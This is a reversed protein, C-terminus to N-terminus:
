DILIIRRKHTSLTLRVKGIVSFARTAIDLNVLTRVYPISANTTSLLGIGVLLGTEAEFQLTQIYEGATVNEAWYRMPLTGAEADTSTVTELPPAVTVAVIFSTDDSTFKTVVSSTPPHYVTPAGLMPSFTSPYSYLRSIRNDARTLSYLAPGASEESGILYVTETKSDTAIGQGFGVYPAVFPLPVSWSVIPDSTNWAIMAVSDAIHPISTVSCRCECHLSPLRVRLTISAWPM